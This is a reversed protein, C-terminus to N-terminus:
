KIVRLHNRGRKGDPTKGAPRPKATAPKAAAVPKAKAASKAPKGTHPPPASLPNQKGSMQLLDLDKPIDEEWVQGKKTNPDYIAWVSIFPIVCRHPRGGFSLTARIEEPFIEIPRKFNLNFILNLAPNTKHQPPVSVETQRADLCVMADGQGLLHSLYDHKNKGEDEM